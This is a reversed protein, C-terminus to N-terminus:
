QGSKVEDTSREIIIRRFEEATMEPWYLERAFELQSYAIGDPFIGSTRIADGTRIVLDIDPVGVAPLYLFNKRFDWDMPDVYEKEQRGTNLWKTVSVAARGADRQEEDKDYGLCITLDLGTNEESRECLEAFGNRIYEPIRPDNPKGVVRIKEGNAVLEPLGTNLMNEEVAQWINNLEGPDRKLNAMSVLNITLYDLGDIESAVQATEVMRQAGLRYGDLLSVGNAKAWTRNNDPIILVHRPIGLVKKEARSEPAIRGTEVTM